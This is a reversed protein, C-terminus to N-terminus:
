GGDQGDNAESAQRLEVDAEPATVPRVLRIAQGDRIKQVGEVIVRDSDQLAGDVLALGDRRSTITVPVRAAEGDRVVFLHSGEGGWVIAEEAVAARTVDNRTFRVRFSMGPRFRDGTNAIAARVVFNRSDSAIRSDTSVIRADIPNDPDSFAAVQVVQGERLTAFVEEPAPFDIYLRSRQDIQAIPTADSVRDGPDIETLGIHGSFPARIVRDALEAQAQRLAVQASSLATEGAEIQSESIAGTDEIRRYRGLLQEAELVQVRAADVALREQRADLQLLPQGARVFDGASFMVRVVRGASEPYIEASTVARATGIAEVEVQEPLFRVDEAVVPVAEEDREGSESSCAALLVAGLMGLSRNLFTM